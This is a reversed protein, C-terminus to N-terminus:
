FLVAFPLSPGEASTGGEAGDSRTFALVSGLALAHGAVAEQLARCSFLFCAHM